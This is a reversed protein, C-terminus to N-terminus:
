GSDRSAVGRERAWAIVQGRNELGLKRLVREVHTEATRVGTM